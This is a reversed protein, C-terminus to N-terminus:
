AKIEALSTWKQRYLFVRRGDQLTGSVDDYPTIKRKKGHLPIHQGDCYSFIYDTIPTQVNYQKNVMESM